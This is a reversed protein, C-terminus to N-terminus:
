CRDAVFTGLDANAAAVEDARDALPRLPALPDQDGSATAPQELAADIAASLDELFDVLVDLQDRIEGPATDRLERQLALADQVDARAAALDVDDEDITLVGRNREDDTALVCFRTLDGDSGNCGVGTLLVAAGVLATIPRPWPIVWGVM